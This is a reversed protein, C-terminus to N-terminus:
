FIKNPRFQDCFFLRPKNKKSSGSTIGLGHIIRLSVDNCLLIIENNKFNDVNTNYIQM